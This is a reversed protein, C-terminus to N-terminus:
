EQSNMLTPNTPLRNLLQHTPNFSFDKNIKLPQLLGEEEEANLPPKILIKMPDLVM